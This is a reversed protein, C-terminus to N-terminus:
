WGPTVHTGGGCVRLELVSVANMAKELEDSLWRLSAKTVMVTTQGTNLQYSQASNSVALIAAEFAVVREQAATLRAAWFDSTPPCCTTM